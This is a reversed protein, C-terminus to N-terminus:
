SMTLTSSDISMTIRRSFFLNMQCPIPGSSVATRASSADTSRSCADCCASCRDEPPRSGPSRARAAGRRNEAARECRAARCRGGSGRGARAANAGRSAGARESRAGRAGEARGARGGGAACVAGLRAAAFRRAAVLRRVLRQGDQRAAEDAQQQGRARAAVGLRVQAEVLRRADQARARGRRVVRTCLVAARAHCLGLQAPEVVDGVHQLCDRQDVLHVELRALGSELPDAQAGARTGHELGGGGDGLNGLHAAHAREGGVHKARVRRQSAVRPQHRVAHGRGPRLQEARVRLGVHRHPRRTELAGGGAGEAKTRARSRLPAGRARRTACLTAGAARRRRPRVRRRGRKRGEHTGRASRYQPSIALHAFSPICEDEMGASFAICEADPREAMCAAACSLAPPPAPPADPSPADPSEAACSAAACMPPMAPPRPGM